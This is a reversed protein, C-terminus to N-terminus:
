TFGRQVTRRTENVEWPRALRLLENRLTEKDVQLYRPTRWESVKFIGGNLDVTQGPLFGHLIQSASRRAITM